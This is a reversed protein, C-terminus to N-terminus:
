PMTLFLELVKEKVALEYIMRHTRYPYVRNSLFVFVLDKDPEAWVFTGTFGSHGFGDPAGSPAPYSKEVSRGNNDLYPKDFGLGRRNNNEPYQVRTFERLTAESIYQKGNYTGYNEYMQILAALDDANSFLGANGSVGGLLSANEDHVSANVLEKRYITDMETPVILDAPYKGKPNFWMSELEMPGYFNKRLYYEYDEGTLQEILKPFILFTLGSYVYKKEDSVKSRSMIRYMKNHFRHNLYLSDDLKVSFKRSETKRVFRRKFNGESDKLIYKVFVIYSELGAQHALIERLTLEKKDKHHRWPKWYTSFPKDLDIKGEDYLKMLAPLPASIKTVSALDYLDRLRTKTISDYTHYGFAEHYVKQGNKLILVQCGPFAEKKIAENIVTAVSDRISEPVQENLNQSFSSLTFCLLILSLYIRM